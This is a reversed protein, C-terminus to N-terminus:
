SMRCALLTCISFFNTVVENKIKDDKITENIGYRTAIIISALHWLQATDSQYERSIFELTTNRKRLEAAFGHKVMNRM